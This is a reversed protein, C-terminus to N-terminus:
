GITVMADFAHVIERTSRFRADPDPALARLLLQDFSHPSGPVLQSPPAVAQPPRPALVGTLLHYLTAGFAYMDGAMDLHAEPARYADYPVAM